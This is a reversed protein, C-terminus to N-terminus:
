VNMSFNSNKMLVELGFKKSLKNRKLNNRKISSCSCSKGERKKENNGELTENKRVSEPIGLSERERERKRV